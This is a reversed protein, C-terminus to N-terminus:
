RSRLNRQADGCVAILNCFERKLEAGSSRVRVRFLSVNCQVVVALRIVCDCNEEYKRTAALQLGVVFHTKHEAMSSDVCLRLVSGICM